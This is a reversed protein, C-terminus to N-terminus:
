KCMESEKRSIRKGQLRCQYESENCADQGCCSHSCTWDPDKCLVSVVTSTTDCTEGSLCQKVFHKSVISGNNFTTYLTQCRDQGPACTVLQQQKVCDEESKMSSCLYCKLGLAAILLMSMCQILLINDIFDLRLQM